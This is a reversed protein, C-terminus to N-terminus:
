LDIKHQMGHGVAEVLHDDAGVVPADAPQEAADVLVPVPVVGLFPFGVLAVEVGLHLQVKGVGLLLDAAAGEAPVESEDEVVHVGGDNGALRVKGDHDRLGHRPPVM